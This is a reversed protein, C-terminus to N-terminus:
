SIPKIGLMDATRVLEVLSKVGMKRMVRRRHVKITQEGTGLDAAIIKNLKGAIVYQFVERQRPTLQELRKRLEAVDVEQAQQIKARELASDVALVLDDSKIPKILFDDAGAKIAKVSTPIDGHGTLFIIPIRDQKEALHQQVDLGDLGPMALDLILCAPGPARQHKFFEEATDFTMVDYARARLVRSLAKLMAPEDDLIYIMPKEISM